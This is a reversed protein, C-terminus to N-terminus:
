AGEVESVVDMLSIIGTDGRSTVKEEQIVV